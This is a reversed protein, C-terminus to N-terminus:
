APSVLSLTQRRHTRYFTFDRDLTWICADAQMEAMRVLCADAFSMPRERYRQMLARVAAFEGPFDFEIRVFGSEILAFVDDGNHGARKLVFLSESIVAECTLVTAPAHRSQEVAWTHQGDDPVLLAVIPGTDILWTKM